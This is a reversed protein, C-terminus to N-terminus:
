LKTSKETYLIYMMAVAERVLKSVNRPQMEEAKRLTEEDLSLTVVKRNKIRIPAGKKM